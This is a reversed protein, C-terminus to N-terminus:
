KGIDKRKIDRIYRENIVFLVNEFYLYKNFFDLKDWCFIVVLKSYVKKQFVDYLWLLEYFNM